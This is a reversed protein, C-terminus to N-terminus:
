FKWGKWLEMQVSLLFYVSCETRKLKILCFKLVWIWVGVKNCKSIHEGPPCLEEMEQNNGRKGQYSMWTNEFVKHLSKANLQSAVLLPVLYRGQYLWM